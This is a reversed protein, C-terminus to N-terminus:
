VKMMFNSLTCLRLDLPMMMTHEAILLRLAQTMVPYDPLSLACGIFICLEPLPQAVMAIYGWSMHAVLSQIPVIDICETLASHNLVFVKNYTSEKKM